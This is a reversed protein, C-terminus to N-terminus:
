ERTIMEDLNLLTRALTRWVIPESVGPQAREAEVLEQLRRAEPEAPPRGLALQFAVQIRERDTGAPSERQVREAFAKALETLAPDNLLTLAQLPTNSRLRRTCTQYSDPADFVALAPHLTTRQLHTYVARRFRDPGRSTKWPRDNQTFSGLGEPQPPFVPPGGIRPEFKESVVLLADRIVEADLRLRSQRGLWINRPDRDAQGPVWRSSQQYTTSLVVRRHLQKLSWGRDQFDGALWDLLEPNSPPTGQTGFDNETEVLGRGFYQQWVRNVLVRATLPHRPDVLWRALDLRNALGSSTEFPATGMARALVAPVQPQVEGAPRTFDGKILIRTPRPTPREKMVLTQLLAPQEGRLTDLAKKRSQYGPQQDRFAAWVLNSQDPNRQLPPIQLTDQVLASLRTRAESSLSHEWNGFQPALERQTWDKLEEEQRKLQQRVGDRRAIIEPPSLELTNEAELLASGHGDNECSNFFALFQYYDQQTFPDFKHDHCQACGLTMGMWVTATTNVRDVVSELRFQEPDIGGEHNVQTNRHFGTAILPDHAAAGAPLDGPPLLDGAIQWLTFVDFPLDANLARIVWDRYPWISRVSDISYGNSDAYRAADLWWRGWREGYHPSALLREVVQEYATPAADNLFSQVEESTPPLGILDLSVRRLLTARDAAPSPSLGASQLRPLVWADVPSSVGAHRPLAPQTIPSFAWHRAPVTSPRGTAAPPEAAQMRLGWCLAVALLSWGQWCVVSRRLLHPLFPLM